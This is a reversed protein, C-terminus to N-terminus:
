YYNLVGDPIHDGGFTPDKTLFYQYRVYGARDPVPDDWTVDIYYYEGDVKVRNWAHGGGDATGTIVACEIGAMDMFGKFTEAYGQCVARGHTLPGAIHFSDEPVTGNLFSDFDYAVNLCLWDHVAKVKDRDSMEPIMLRSSLSYLRLYANATADATHGERGEAIGTTIYHNYLAAGDQGFAAALDPYEEAYRVYDFEEATVLKDPAIRGPWENDIGYTIYYVYVAERSAGYAAAVEPHMQLYWDYDFADETVFGLAEKFFIADNNGSYAKAEGSKGMFLAFVLAMAFFTKLINKRM